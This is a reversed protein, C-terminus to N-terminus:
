FMPGMFGNGMNRGLGGLTNGLGGTLGGLTNGLGLGGTTGGLTNGLGLGGTLGSLTNGLGGTLGYLTNGLGSTLGYLTNGLGGTLGSLTNGLGGTIGGLSNGLGGTIGGLTNGLGSFINGIGGSYGINELAQCTASLTALGNPTLQPTNQTIGQVLDCIIMQINAPLTALLDLLKLVEYGLGINDNNRLSIINQIIQRLQPLNSIQTLFTRYQQLEQEQAMSIQRGLQPNQQGLLNMLGSLQRKSLNPNSIMNLYQQLLQPNNFGFMQPNNYGLSGQLQQLPNGQEGLLNGPLSLLSRLAQASFIENILQNQILIRVPLTSYM